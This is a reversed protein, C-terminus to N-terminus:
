DGGIAVVFGVADRGSAPCGRTLRTLQNSGSSSEYARYQNQVAWIQIKEALSLRFNIPMSGQSVNFGQANLMASVASNRHRTQLGIVFASQNICKMGCFSHMITDNQIGTGVRVRGDRKHIRNRRNLKRDDFHVQGVDMSAFAKAVRRINGRHGNPLDATKASM